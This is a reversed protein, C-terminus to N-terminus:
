GQETRGKFTKELVEGFPDRGLICINWSSSEEAFAHAPWTVYRAFNRLFAAEVESPKATASEQGAAFCPLCFLFLLGILGAWCGTWPLRRAFLVIEKPLRASSIDVANNMM